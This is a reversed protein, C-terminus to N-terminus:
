AARIGSLSQAEKPKEAPNTGTNRVNVLKKLTDFWFPAGLMTAGATILWGMVKVLWFWLYYWPEGSLTKGGLSKNWRSDNWGVPFDLKRIEKLVIEGDNVNLELGGETKKEVFNDIYITSAQRMAPNRWLQEAIYISDVNFLVAVSLGIVFALTQAWRKYWGSMRDMVNDFWTEVNKKGVAIATDTGSAFEEVGALLSGLTKGLGKDKGLVQIGQQLNDLMLDSTFLKKLDQNYDRVLITIRESPEKLEPYTKGLWNISQHLTTLLSEKQEQSISEAAMQGLKYIQDVAAKAEAQSIQSLGGIATKVDNLAFHIPSESTGAQIVIDFLAESFNAAPIYSPKRPICLWKQYSEAWTLKEKGNLENYRNTKKQDLPEVLSQILPHEYFEKLKDPNKLMNGIAKELDTARKDTIRAIIEQAQMTAISILLWSFVLGIAVEVLEQLYM